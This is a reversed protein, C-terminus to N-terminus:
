GALRQWIARIEGLMRDFRERFAALEGRFVAGEERFAQHQRINERSEGLLVEIQTSNERDGAAQEAQRQVAVGEIMSVVDAINARLEERHSALSTRLEESHAAIARANSEILREIRDLRINSAAQSEAIAALAMKVRDLPSLSSTTM